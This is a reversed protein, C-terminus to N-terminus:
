QKRLSTKRLQLVKYATGAFALRALTRWALPEVNPADTASDAVTEPAPSYERYRRALESLRSGRERLEIAFGALVFAVALRWQLEVSDAISGFTPYIATCDHGSSSETTVAARLQGWIRGGDKPILYGLLAAAILLVIEAATACVRARDSAFQAYKSRREPSTLQEAHNDSTPWRSSLSPWTNQKLAPLDDPMAYLFPKDALEKAQRFKHRAGLYAWISGLAAVFYFALALGDTM